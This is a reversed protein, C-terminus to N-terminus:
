YAISVEKTEGEKITMGQYSFTSSGSLVAFYFTAQQGNRLDSKAFRHNHLEFTAVGNSEAIVQLDAYLPQFFATTPGKISRFMYVTVGPRAQGNTTTVKVKVITEKEKEKQCSTTLFLGCFLASLTLLKIKTKM